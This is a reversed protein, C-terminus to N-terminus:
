SPPRLPQQCHACQRGLYPLSFLLRELSYFFLAGCRPCARGLLAVFRAVWGATMVGYLVLVPAFALWPLEIAATAALGASAAM